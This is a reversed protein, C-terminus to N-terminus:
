LLHSEKKNNANNETIRLIIIIITIIITYTIKSIREKDRYNIIIIIIHVNAFFYHYTINPVYM